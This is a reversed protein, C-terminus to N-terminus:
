NQKKSPRRSLREKTGGLFREGDSMYSDGNSLREFETGSGNLSSERSIRQGEIAKVSKPRVPSKEELQERTSKLEEEESEPKVKPAGILKKGNGM